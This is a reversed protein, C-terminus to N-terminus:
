TSSYLLRVVLVVVLRVVYRSWVRLGALPLGVRPRPFWWTLVLLLVMLLLSLVVLLLVVMLLVLESAPELLLFVYVFEVLVPLCVLVLERGLELLVLLPVFELESLLLLRMLMRLRHELTQPHLEFFRRLMSLLLRGVRFLLRGVMRVMWRFMRM